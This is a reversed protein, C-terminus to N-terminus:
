HMPNGAGPPRCLSTVGASGFAAAIATDALLARRLRPETWALALMSAAHLGDAAAGARLRGSTPALGCIAAQALQRAGLVRAVVRVRGSVPGGAVTSVLPGPVRLLVVGYCARVISVWGAGPRALAPGAHCPANAISRRLARIRASATM